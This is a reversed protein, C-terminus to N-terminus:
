DAFTRDFSRLAADAYRSDDQEHGHALDEILSCRAHFRLRDRLGRDDPFVRAALHDALAYGFDRGIRGLDHAPDTWAADSWDIVGTIRRRDEDLLLHEAGLDNHCLVATNPEAPLSHQLFADLTLSQEPRLLRAAIPALDETEERYVTMPADDEYLLDIVANRTLAGLAGLLAELEPLLSSPDAPPADLASRGPLRELVITGSSPDAGIVRPVPVPLHEALLDLLGHEREIERATDDSVELRQRLVWRDDIGFAANDTGCGLLTVREAEGDADIARLLERATPSLEVAAPGVPSDM